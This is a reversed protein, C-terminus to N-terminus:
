FKFIVEVDLTDLYGMRYDSMNVRQWESGIAWSANVNYKVGLGYEFTNARRPIPQILYDIPIINPSFIVTAQYWSRNTAVKSALVGARALVSFYQNIPLTGVLDLSAGSVEVRRQGGDFTETDSLPFGRITGRLDNSKFWGGELAVYPTFSYGVFLRYSEGTVPGGLSTRKGNFSIDANHLSAFSYGDGAGVYPEGALALAPLLMAGVIVFATANTMVVFRQSASRRSAPTNISAASGLPWYALLKSVRVLLADPVNREM